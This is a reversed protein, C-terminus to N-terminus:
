LINSFWLKTLALQIQIITSDLIKDGCNKAFYALIFEQFDMDCKISASISGASSTKNYSLIYIFILILTSFILYDIFFQLQNRTPIILLQIQQQDINGLNEKSARNQPIPNELNEPNRRNRKEPNGLNQHNQNELDELAPIVLDVIDRFKPAQFKM